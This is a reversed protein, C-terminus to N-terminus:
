GYNFYYKWQQIYDDFLDQNLRAGFPFSKSIMKIEVESGVEVNEIELEVPHTRLIIHTM